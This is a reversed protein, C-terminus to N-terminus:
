WCKWSNEFEKLDANMMATTAGTYTRSYCYSSQQKVSYHNGERIETTCVYYSNNPVMIALWEGISLKRNALAPDIVYPYSNVYVLTAVHYYWNNRWCGSKLKGFAFIKKSKKGYVNSIVERMKHARAYCGDAKHQFPICQDIDVYSNDCSQNSLFNFVRDVEFTNYFNGSSRSSSILSDSETLAVYNNTNQFTKFEEESLPELNLLDGDTTLIAKLPRENRSADNIAELLESSNMQTKKLLFIKPSIGISIAYDDTTEFDTLIGIHNIQTEHDVPIDINSETLLSENGEKQCSTLLFSSISVFIFLVLFNKM